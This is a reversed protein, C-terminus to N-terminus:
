LGLQQIWTSESVINIENGQDRLEVAQEIKRGFSEHIWSDTVYTGIILYNTSKSVGGVTGARDCIAAECTKRNGFAFTGTFCFRKGRVKITPEPDCLPLTTAKQLEGLGFDSGNLKTLLSLLELAEDEDLSNDSLMENTRILLNQIMPSSSSPSCSVLWKQLAEAESETVKGDAVIGMSLGILTDIQKDAIKKTNFRNFTDQGLM